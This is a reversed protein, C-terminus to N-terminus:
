RDLERQVGIRRAGKGILVLDLSNLFPDAPAVGLRAADAGLAIYHILAKTESDIASGTWFRISETGARFSGCPYDKKSGDDGTHPAYIIKIKGPNLSEMWTHNPLERMQYVLNTSHPKCFAKVGSALLSREVAEGLKRRKTWPFSWGYITASDDKGIRVRVDAGAYEVIGGAPSQRTTFGMRELPLWWCDSLQKPWSYVIFGFM